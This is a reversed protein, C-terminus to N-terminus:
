SNSVLINWKELCQDLIHEMADRDTESLNYYGSQTGKEKYRLIYKIIFYCAHVKGSRILKDLMKEDYDEESFWLKTAFNAADEVDNLAGSLVAKRQKKFIEPCDRIESSINNINYASTTNLSKINISIRKFEFKKPDYLKDYSLSRIRKMFITHTMLALSQARDLIPNVLSSIRSNLIGSRRLHQVYAEGVFSSAKQEIKQKQRNAKKWYKSLCLKILGTFSLTAILVGTLFSNKIGTLFFCILCFIMLLSLGRQLSGYGRVIKNNISHISHNSFDAGLTNESFQFDKVEASGVDCIMFLSAQDKKKIKKSDFYNLLSDIGQNDIIGGDLLAISKDNSIFSSNNLKISQTHQFDHPFKMPEFGGPFCSSAAMIDGLKLEEKFESYSFGKIGFKSKTKFRFANGDVFETTNFIVEDL